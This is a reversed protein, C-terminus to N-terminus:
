MTQTHLNVNLDKAADTLTEQHIMGREAGGLEGDSTLLRNKHLEQREVRVVKGSFSNPLKSSQHVTSAATQLVNTSPQDVWLMSM